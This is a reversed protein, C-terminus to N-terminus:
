EKRQLCIMKDAKADSGSIGVSGDGLLFGECTASSKGDLDSRRGLGDYMGMAELWDKVTSM